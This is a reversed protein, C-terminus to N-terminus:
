DEKLFNCKLKLIKNTKKTVKVKNSIRYGCVWIIENGSVLIPIKRKLYVATKEDTFFDSLKKKQKM